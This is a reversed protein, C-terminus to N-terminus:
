QGECPLCKEITMSEVVSSTRRAVAGPVPEKVLRQFGNSKGTWLTEPDGSLKMLTFGDRDQLLFEFRVEDTPTSQPLPLQIVSKGGGLDIRKEQLFRKPVKSLDLPAVDVEIKYGLRLTHRASQDTSDVFKFQGATKRVDPDPMDAM